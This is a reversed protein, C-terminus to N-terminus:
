SCTGEAIQQITGMKSISVTKSLSGSSQECVVFSTDSTADKVLGTSLFTITTPSGSKLVAKGNPMWNLQTETDAVEATNLQVTIQRREFAAKARAKTLVEALEQSSKKLNQKLMLDKFSPAALMAIIVLVAITVMLEIM